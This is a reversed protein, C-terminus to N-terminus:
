DLPDADGAQAGPGFLDEQPGRMTEAFKRLRAIARSHRRRAADVNISLRRASEEYGLDDEDIWRLIERDDDSLM